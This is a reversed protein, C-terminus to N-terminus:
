ADKEPARTPDVSADRRDFFKALTEPSPPKTVLSVLVMAFASSVFITVVPMLPPIVSLLWPPFDPEPFAYRGNEGFGSRYFLIWWSIVTALIGAMAGPATLRRWYIAAFVLPSLGTFGSFCWISLDFVRRHPLLAILYTVIVIGVVFARALMVVQKDTLRTAHGYHRVIDNTFMTGLCLFQSDLSSMIAALIGATLLGGLVPGALQSVLAALVDNEGVDAPLGATPASAWIGILVCPLWVIMIFIPHVVIPLRFSNANRATLWHQFVHPFMAVSLPILLFSFYVAKPVRARTLHDEAVAQSAAQMSTWLSDGGGLGNAITVFTLMGLLMFVATQFANAWATGRMGGFFVYCLVVACIVLSALWTPVAHNSAAFLGLDAFAGQTVNHVVVGGSIVGILLYPIVLGVLVPFLLLGIWDSELRHRFFQIQTTYGYRHGFGWLRLGIVFFCLSHMIGSASALMGYVGVGLTFSKGTSGVLAFATMTTGFLSLLLLVPGITQSALMYDAATGRSMRNSVLGIGLLLFLYAVIIALQTM